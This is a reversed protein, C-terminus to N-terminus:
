VVEAVTFTSGGVFVLDNIGANLQAASLADKVTLFLEGKLGEKEAQQKLEQAPLARPINAKCFYYTANKPLMKLITTIDKDNVMGIVFHLHDHTTKSIQELVEKIGAENHGTDAITLPTNSLIQWRGLLGTNKVVYKIGRRVNEERITFNKQKLLEVAAIVTKINKEQYQGSLASELDKFKISGNMHIDMTLSPTYRLNTANLEQDAYVINANNFSAINEFVTKTEPHTEGVVVPVNKKIVGAKETAIKELSNGLLATHDFSINTIVSVEPTIVNTSDLRGGLGVEIVAIDISSKSFYDFALGVTMEFFSPQIKEFDNKYRDIFDIVFSESIMEGNIKIRERFDKLHPSTYLGVRYGADQLISAIMHSTSGKGNTGAIHISRFKNEPHDLLECIAITNDLNDKYAASGIRQFMPLQSFMYDLTEQYNM